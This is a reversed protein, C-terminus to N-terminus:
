STKVLLPLRMAAEAVCATAAAVFMGLIQNLKTVRMVDNRTCFDVSRNSANASPHGLARMQLLVHLAVADFAQRRM